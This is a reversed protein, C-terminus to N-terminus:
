FPVDISPVDPWGGGTPIDRQMFERHRKAEDAKLKEIFGRQTESMRLESPVPSGCFACTPRRRNYLERRCKPCKFCM